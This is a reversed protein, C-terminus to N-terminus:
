VSYVSLVKLKPKWFEFWKPPIYGMYVARASAEEYDDVYCTLFNESNKSKWSVTYRKM